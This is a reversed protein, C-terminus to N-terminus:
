LVGIDCSSDSFHSCLELTFGHFTNERMLHLSKDNISVLDDQILSGRFVFDFLKFELLILAICNVDDHACSLAFYTTEKNEGLM